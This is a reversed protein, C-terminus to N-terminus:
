PEIKGIMQNSPTGKPVNFGFRLFWNQLMTVFTDLSNGGNLSAAVALYTNNIYPIYIRDTRPPGSLESEELKSNVLFAIQASTSINLVADTKEEVSALVSCQLDGM